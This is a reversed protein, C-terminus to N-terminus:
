EAVDRCGSHEHFVFGALAQAMMVGGLSASLRTL